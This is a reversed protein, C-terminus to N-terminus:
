WAYVTGASTLAFAFSTGGAVQTILAGSPLNVPVPVTSSSTTGNGMEGDGGYGWAYLSGVSSAAAAKPVAPLGLVALILGLSIVLVTARRHDPITARRYAPSNVRPLPQQGPPGTRPEQRGRVR